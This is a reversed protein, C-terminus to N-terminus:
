LLPVRPNLFPPVNRNNNYSFLLYSDEPGNVKANYRQWGKCENHYHQKNLLFSLDNAKLTHYSFVDVIGLTDKLMKIRNFLHVHQEFFKCFLLLFYPSIGMRNILYRVMLDQNPQVSMFICSFLWAELKMMIMLMNSLFHFIFFQNVKYEKHKRCLSSYYFIMTSIIISSAWYATPPNSWTPRKTDM